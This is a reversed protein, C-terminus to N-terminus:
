NKNAKVMDAILKLIEDNELENERVIIRLVGYARSIAINMRIRYQEIDTQVDTIIVAPRELGKYRLFTDCVVSEEIRSDTALLPEHGGITRRHVISEKFLLGRLSIVSIEGPRFREDMLERVEQDLLGEPGQENFIMLKVVGKKIDAEVVWSDLKKGLYAEAIAQVGPPCRYPKLLEYHVCNARICEPISRDPWFAQKEDMFSWIRPPKRTCKLVIDWESQGLDQAEDVIVTDWEDGEWRSQSEAVRRTVKNWFEPVRSEAESFGESRLINLAFRGISFVGLRQNEISHLQKALELALAETFTLLLVKKNGQAEKKALERALITKGTGAGGRVLVINNKIISQLANFQDADLKIREQISATVRVSLKLNRPWSECWLGHIFETWGQSPVRRIGVPIANRMVIPLTERLYPLERSGIVRGELDSQTPQKEFFTDPFIVIEGIAPPVINKERFVSLLVNRFRHAQELPALNIPINNQFWRGDKKEIIGGKVEIILLGLPPNAIIFDGEAYIGLSNRIKLSHWAVWENRLADRLFSYVKKESESAAPPPGDKPFLCKILPMVYM